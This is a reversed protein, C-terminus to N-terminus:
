ELVENSNGGLYTCIVRQAIISIEPTIMTIFDKVERTPLISAVTEKLYTLVELTMESVLGNQDISINGNCIARFLEEGASTIKYLVKPGGLRQQKSPIKLEEVHGSDVWSKLCNRLGSYSLYKVHEHLNKVTFSEGSSLVRLLDKFDFLRLIKM